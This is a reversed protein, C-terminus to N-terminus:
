RHCDGHEQYAGEDATDSCVFITDPNCLEASEYIAKHVEPNDIASLKKYDNQSTKAQLAALYKKM